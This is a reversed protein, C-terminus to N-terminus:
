ITLKLNRKINYENRITDIAQLVQKKYITSLPRFTLRTRTKNQTTAKLQQSMYRQGLRPSHIDERLLRVCPSQIQYVTPAVTRIAKTLCTTSPITIATTSTTPSNQATETRLHYRIKSKNHGRPTSEHDGAEKDMKEWDSQHHPWHQHKTM